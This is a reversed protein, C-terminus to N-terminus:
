SSRDGASPSMPTTPIPASRRATTPCRKDAQGARERVRGRVHLPQDSADTGVKSILGNLFETDRATRSQRLLIRALPTMPLGPSDTRATMDRCVNIVHRNRGDAMHMRLCLIYPEANGPGLRLREDIDSLAGDTDGLHRLISARLLLRGFDPRLQVAVNANPIVYKVQGRAM